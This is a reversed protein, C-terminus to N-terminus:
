KREALKREVVREVVRELLGGRGEGDDGAGLYALVQKEIYKGTIDVEVNVEEGVQKKATIIKEQTYEVLMVEWWGEGVAIVTLSAGDITVYGKEVVYKMVEADRPKFRLVVSSGDPRRDVISAITDVHGQVFHGGFRVDGSVARELNVQVVPSSTSSTAPLSHPFTTRRLTEPSLDVRFTDSTFSTITLCTGNVSISDGLHADTLIPTANTITLTTTQTTESHTISSIAANYSLPANNAFSDAVGKMKGKLQPQPAKSWIRVRHDDGASAFMYPNKPNWAVCNVIGSHGPLVVVLAGNEKRWVYVNSDESGSVVFNEDAGGFCNRVVYEKQKTGSFQRVDTGTEINLLRLEQVGAGMTLLLYKSDKSVSICTSVGGLDREYEKERTVFNFVHLKMQTCVAALRKSDATVALDYVRAGTWKHISEGYLNWLIMDGDVSGTVFTQGDPAWACSSVWDTHANMTRMCIGTTTDWLKAQKDQSCSLLKSDDPSWRLYTIAGTHAKLHHIPQFDELDWIIVTHDKSGTALRTGDNSFQVFWVEDKHDTLIEVTSLPFQNRDCHHDTYLSPSSATNHYLCKSLQNQKVQHLLSALRHEPIMVSASISKSLESLLQQRSLGAAGDWEARAKLDEASLCMMLSSLSHLKEVSQNLPTLETRLVHLAKSVNAVELLELFKQQRMYFLLANVDADRNIELGFLLEEAKNWQGQLVANRFESVEPSELTYESEEELVGAAKHYGLDVLSQIVIRTIEERDHGFYSPKPTPPALMTFSSATSGGELKGSGNRVGAGNGNTEVVATSAGNTGSCGGDAVSAQSNLGNNEIRM